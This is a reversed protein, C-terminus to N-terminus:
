PAQFIELRHFFERYPEVGISLTTLPLRHANWEDIHVSAIIARPSALRHLIEAVVSFGGGIYQPYLVGTIVILDFTGGLEEPRLDFLSRAEFRFTRGPTSKVRERAYEVARESLDVGVIERGPLEVTVFGNGCGIDLAREYDLRPLAARLRAVRARDDPTTDDGM